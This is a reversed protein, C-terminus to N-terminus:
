AFDELTRIKECMRIRNAKESFFMGHMLMSHSICMEWKKKTINYM